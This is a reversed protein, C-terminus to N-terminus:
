HGLLEIFALKSYGAMKAAQVLTVKGVEYLKVTLLLRAEDESVELPLDVQLINM